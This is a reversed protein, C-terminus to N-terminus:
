LMNTNLHWAIMFSVIKANQGPFKLCVQGIILPDERKRQDPMIGIADFIKKQMAKNTAKMIEPKAMVLPFEFEDWGIAQSYRKTENGSQYSSREIIPQPNKYEGEGEPLMDARQEKSGWHDDTTMALLKGKSRIAFLEIPFNPIIYYGEMLAAKIKKYYDIQKIMRHHQRQLPLHKWQMKRAYEAAEYLPEAEKKLWTIKGDCWTILEQQANVMEIPHLATLEIDKQVPNIQIQNNANAEM